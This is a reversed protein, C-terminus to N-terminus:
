LLQLFDSLNHTDEQQKKDKQLMARLSNKQKKRKKSRVSPKPPQPHSKNRSTTATPETNTKQAQASSKSPKVVSESQLALDRIQTVNAGEHINQKGCTLCAFSIQKTNRRKKKKKISKNAGSMRVRCNVGPVLAQDCHKCISAQIGSSLGIIMLLYFKQM